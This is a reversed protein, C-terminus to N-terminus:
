QPERRRLRQLIADHRRRDIPHHWAIYACASLLAAPFLLTVFVLARSGAPIITSAPDFGLWQLLPLATAIAVATAVKTVFSLVAMYLGAQPAFRRMAGYDIADAALSPVLVFLAGASCGVLVLSAAAPLFAGAPVLALLVQGAAAGVCGVALTRHRGFRAAISLVLPVALLTAVQQILLLQLFLAQMRLVTNIYFLIGATFVLLALTSLFGILLVHMFPGNRSVQQLAKLATGQEHPENGEPPGLVLAVPVAVAMIAIISTGLIGVVDPLPPSPVGTAAYPLLVTGLSGLVTCAERLGFIRSRVHHDSSIAAGWALYPVQVASWATYAAILTVFLFLPGAAAPPRLLLFVALCLAPTALLVWPRRRGWRGRTADSALGVLLDSASDWLRAVFFIAGVTALSLGHHMVYLNPLFVVLPGSLM